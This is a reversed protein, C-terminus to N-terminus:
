LKLLRIHYIKTNIKLQVLYVGRAYTLQNLNFSYSYKNNEQIENVLTTLRQGKYNYVELKVMSRQDLHYSINVYDTSPNPYISLDVSENKRSDENIATIKKPVKVWYGKTSLMNQPFYVRGGPIMVITSDIQFTAPFTDILVSIYTNNTDLKPTMRYVFNSDTEMGTLAYNDIWPILTDILPQQQLPDGLLEDLQHMCESMIINDHPKMGANGSANWFLNYDEPNMALDVHFIMEQWYDSDFFYSTTDWNDGFYGRYGYWPSIPVSSSLQMARFNNVAFRFSNFPTGAYVQGIVPELNPNYTIEQLRGYMASSQHTGVHAGNGYLYTRHGNGNSVPFKKSYYYDRYNSVKVNPYYKKIPAYIAKNIYDATKKVLYADWKLYCTDNNQWNGVDNVFDCAGMLSDLTVGFFPDVMSFRPDNKIATYYATRDGGYYEIANNNLRWNSLKREFDIIFVDLEGGLTKYHNFFTDLVSAMSDVGNEWWLSRDYLVSDPNQYYYALHGLSDRLADKPHKPLINRDAQWLRIARHGVPMVDTESKVIVAAGNQIINYPDLRWKDLLPATYINDVSSPVTDWSYAINQSSANFMDLM